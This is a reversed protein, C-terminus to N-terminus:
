ANIYRMLAIGGVETTFDQKEYFPFLEPLGYLEFHKVRVLRPHSKVLEILQEGIGHSRNSEEVIVDFILAKFTFDTLVRVFGILNKSAGLVGVCIQSGSLCRRTDELTRGKTWWERQYLSHVQLIYKENFEYIVEM